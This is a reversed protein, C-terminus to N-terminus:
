LQRVERGTIDYLRLDIISSFPLTYSLTTAANFPNPYASLLTITQPVPRIPDTVPTTEPETRILYIGGPNLGCMLYGGDATVLGTYLYDDSETGYMATWLTDGENTMRMIGYQIGIGAFRDTGCFVSYGYSISNGLSRGIAYDGGGLRNEYIINGLSDGALIYVDSNGEPITMTHGSILFYGEVAVKIDLGQNFQDVGFTKTWLTDGLDDIMLVYVQMSDDEWLRGAHGAVIYRNDSFQAISQAGDAQPTGYRKHWLLDGQENVRMILVDGSDSVAGIYGANGVCLFENNPTVVVSRLADYNDDINYERTWMTDGSQDTRVLYAANDFHAPWGSRSGVSIYGGLPAQQVDVLTEYVHQEGFTYSNEWEFDGLSDVKLLYGDYPFDTVGAIIFGGDPTAALGHPETGGIYNREWRVPPQAIASAASVMIMALMMIQKMKWAECFLLLSRWGGRLPSSTQTRKGTQNRRM